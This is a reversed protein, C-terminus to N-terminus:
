ASPTEESSPTADDEDMAEAAAVLEKPPVAREKVQALGNGSLILVSRDDSADTFIADHIHRQKGAPGLRIRDRRDIVDVTRM